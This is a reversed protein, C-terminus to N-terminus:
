SRDWSPCFYLLYVFDHSLCFLSMSVRYKFLVPLYSPSFNQIQCKTVNMIFCMTNRAINWQKFTSNTADIFM